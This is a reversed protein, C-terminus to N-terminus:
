PEMLVFVGMGDRVVCKEILDLTATYNSIIVIKDNTEANISRLMRELILFKASFHPYIDRDRSGREDPPAYDDPFM